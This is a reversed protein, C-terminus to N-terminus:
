RAPPRGPPPAVPGVTATFTVAQGSASPNASAALTTSTAATGPQSGSFVVDVWYNSSLYSNSPFGSTSGYLYVGNGGDVGNRLAHLPSNDVGTNTFYNNDGAYNGTNTHYSVVYTTNPQIAVPSAFTVEQWGSASENAFTRQALLTGTSSWLSGVHTGTNGTGKYFRVGTITGAVDSRFKVGLEVPSPDNVSPNAPTSTSSFITYRAALAATTFSWTRDTALANGAMDKVGSTGGTITATYMTSFALPSSPTLTETNTVPDYSLSAPIAAGTPDRLVFTGTTITSTDMAESFTARVATGTSAATAGDAPSTAIVTPPTTDATYTGVYNGSAAAFFAYEIGKITQTTFTVASGNRTISSLRKGAYNMPLMSQLGTSGAAASITFSVTNGSAAISGFSSNGHGDLWTLLQTATIVPVGDAQASAIIADSGQSSASDTHMNATFVGYYGETGLARGLLTDENFPYSQGSEDTMQTTAQYVDIMTGDQDAFRMPMGSGTFLGPTDNIWGPPWYYYNADLRIGHNLEVKPQSAWDSWVIGHTRNTVPMPVDPYRAHFQNLENTYIQDLQAQSTWDPPPNAEQTNIHAAVEFGQAVYSAAQADTMLSSPYDPYLYSTSRVPQSGSNGDSLEQNFRGATGGNNHDDGTMVIEAKAGNPLYWFRPLPKRALEVQTILNALLRQQEDAQPIAVKGLDVWDPQPNGAANGYFLDDSRMPTLGDREQGAWAPNGQRTYVVSRALDYTFAAAQGGSTGVSRLTVAPNATATTANSYLTALTTTGPQPTYLDATGHYQMTQGTIGVGPGSATNVQLYANARTAAADNLGLLSALQKDPHMAILSGGSNVWDSFMTVQSSTLPMDGLITVDYSSLMTTTVNSIDTATFENLGETRLIEEYYRPFPNATSTVILIPGGPGENLVAPAAAATTFTSVFDTPIANGSM